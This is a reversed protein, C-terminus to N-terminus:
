NEKKGLYVKANETKNKLHKRKIHGIVASRDSAEFHEQCGKWTCFWPKLGLHIRDHKKLDGKLTFGKGCHSCIFHKVHLHFDVHRTYESQKFFVKQCNPHECIIGLNHIKM